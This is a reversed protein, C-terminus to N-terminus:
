ILVGFTRTSPSGWTVPLTPRPQAISAVDAEDQTHQSGEADKSQIFHSNDVTSSFDPPLANENQALTEDVGELKTYYNEIEAHVGLEQQEGLTRKYRRAARAVEELDRSLRASGRIDAKVEKEGKLTGHFRRLAINSLELAVEWGLDEADDQSIFQPHYLSPGMNALIKVYGEILWSPISYQRALLVRQIPTMPFATLKIIADNRLSNFHWKSSLKLVSLWEDISLDVQSHHHPHCGPLFAKLFDEFETLDVDLEIAKEAGDDDIGSPSLPIGHEVAFVDSDSIFRAKPLQFCFGEVKFRIFDWFYTPHNRLRKPADDGPPGPKPSASIPEPASM